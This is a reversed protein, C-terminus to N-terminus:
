KKDQLLFEFYRIAKKLDEDGNKLRERWTYKLINGKCFGRFEEATLAARIAEICEIGGSAYHSPNINDKQQKPKNIEKTKEEYLCKIFFKGDEQKDEKDWGLYFSCSEQTCFFTKYKIYPCYIDQVGHKYYIKKYLLRVLLAGCCKSVKEGHISSDSFITEKEKGCKSCIWIM